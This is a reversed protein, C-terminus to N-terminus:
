VLEWKYKANEYINKKIKASIYGKSQNIYKSAKTMSCFEKIKNNSKNIIKVKKCISYLGIEFGKQINEKRTIIELNNLNNNTSDGDKHNVTLKSKLPM